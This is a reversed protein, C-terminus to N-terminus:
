DGVACSTPKHHPQSLSALRTSPPYHPPLLLFGDRLSWGMVRPTWQFSWFRLGSRCTNRPSVCPECGFLLQGAWVGSAQPRLPNHDHKTSTGKGNRYRSKGDHVPLVVLDTDCFIKACLFSAAPRSCRFQMNCYDVGLNELKITNIGKACGALVLCQLSVFHSHAKESSSAENASADHGQNGEM